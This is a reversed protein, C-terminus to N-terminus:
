AVSKPRRCKPQPVGQKVVRFLVLLGKERTQKKFFKIGIFIRVAANNKLLWNM